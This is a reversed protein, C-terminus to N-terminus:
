GTFSSPKSQQTENCDKEQKYGQTSWILQMKKWTYTCMSIRRNVDSNPSTKINFGAGLYITNNEKNMPRGNAMIIPAMSNM